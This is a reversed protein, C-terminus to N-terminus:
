AYRQVFDVLQKARDVPLHAAMIDQYLDAAAQTYRKEMITQVLVEELDEGSFQIFRLQPNSNDWGLLTNSVLCTATMGVEFHRCQLGFGTGFPQGVDTAHNIVVKSRRYVDVVHPIDQSVEFHTKWGFEQALIKVRNIMRWRSAHATPSGISGIFSVDIDRGTAHLNQHGPSPSYLEPDATLLLTEAAKYGLAKAVTAGYDDFSLFLKSYKRMMLIMQKIHGFRADDPQYVIVPHKLSGLMAEENGVCSKFVITVDAGEPCYTTVNPDVENVEHGAQRLGKSFAIETGFPANVVFPGILNLKM